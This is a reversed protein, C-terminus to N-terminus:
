WDLGSEYGLEILLEGAIDKFRDRHEMTFNNQWDGIVGKRVIAGDKGKNKKRSAREFRNMEVAQRLLHEPIDGCCFRAITAFTGMDDKRLTEFRLERSNGPDRHARWDRIWRVNAPLIHDIFYTLGQELSLPAIKDHMFHAPRRIIDFYWSVAVDRLDRYLVLYRLNAQALVAENQENWPTHLRIVVLRRRFPYFTDVNLNHNTPTIHSPQAARFGPLACFLNRLWTSGSKPLAAIFIVNQRYSHHYRMWEVHNVVRRLPARLITRSIM